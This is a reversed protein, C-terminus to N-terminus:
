KKPKRQIPSFSRVAKLIDGILVKNELSAVWNDDDPSPTLAVYVQGLIVLTGVVSLITYIVPHLGSVMALLASLDM